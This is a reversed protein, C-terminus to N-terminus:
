RPSQNISATPTLLVAYSVLLLLGIAALSGERLPLTGTNATLLRSLRTAPGVPSSPPLSAVVVPKSIANETVARERERERERERQRCQVQARRSVASRSVV